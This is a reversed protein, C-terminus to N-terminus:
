GYMQVCKAHEYPNLEMSHAMGFFFFCAPLPLDIDLPYNQKCQWMQAMELLELVPSCPNSAPVYPFM